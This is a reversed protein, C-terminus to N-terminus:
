GDFAWLEGKYRVFTWGADRAWAEYDFYYRLTEPIEALGGTEELYTEAIGEKTEGTGIFADRASEITGSEDVGEHYAELLDQDQESLMMWEWVGEDIHSEGYFAKPFNQYDQFMLEPDAEDKHLERCAALFEDKDAYDDLYLWKGAISGNNYKAYTGVYVAPRDNM